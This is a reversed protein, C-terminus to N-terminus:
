TTYWRVIGVEETCQQEQQAANEELVQTVVREQHTDMLAMIFASYRSETGGQLHDLLM